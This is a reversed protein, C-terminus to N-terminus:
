VGAAPRATSILLVSVERGFSDIGVFRCSGAQEWEDVFAKVAPCDFGRAFREAQARTAVALELTNM